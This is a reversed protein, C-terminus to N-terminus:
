MIGERPSYIIHFHKEDRMKNVTLQAICTAATSAFAAHARKM